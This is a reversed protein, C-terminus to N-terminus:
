PHRYRFVKVKEVTVMGEVIVEDLFPLFKNLNEESDIIEIVIPSNDSLSLLKATHMHSDAGFGMLGRVVTAGSLKLDKAKLVIQEYLAKGKHRETEGIFIRLAMGEESFKPV